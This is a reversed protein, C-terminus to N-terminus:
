FYDEGRIVECRIKNGIFGESKLYNLIADRESDKLDSMCDYIYVVIDEPNKTSVEVSLGNVFLSVM